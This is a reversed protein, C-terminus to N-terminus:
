IPCVPRSSLYAKMEAAFREGYAKFNPFQTLIAAWRDKAFGVNPNAVYNAYISGVCFDAATLKNFGGYFGGKALDGDIAKLYTPLANEM